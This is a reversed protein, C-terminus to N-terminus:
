AAGRFRAKRPAAGLGLDTLAWVLADLRDPSGKSEPTWTCMQEELQELGSGVHHVRGQEYLAAIPEARMRKGRSATVKRYAVRAGTQSRLMAEILDGGNNVEAVLRDAAHEDYADVARRMWGQPTDRTSRDDLVYLHGDVGQGAVVIGTEDSDPDATVAPDIAVVTRVLEPAATVRLHEITSLTWLAGDVDDLLEGELEQRGLATGANASLAAWASAAVNARNDESRLVSVPTDPDDILRRILDRAPMHRKPTGTAIILGPDIRVAYAISEDWALRWRKWLGVEDCWAGALNKGQVRLAGDDAGGAHVLQGTPLRLQGMSRNWGRYGLPLNLARLLGSPGEICTDRADAFTPAVVAWETPADAQDTPHTRILEALNRSGAWTKGGFRGGRLYWTRHWGPPPQQDPRAQARWARPGTGAADLWRDAAAALVSASM